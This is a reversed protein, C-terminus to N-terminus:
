QALSLRFSVGFSNNTVPYGTSIYPRNGQRDYYIQVNVKDSLLYDATFKITMTKTGATIQNVGEEIRRIISFNDRLGLDLRLNLDSSMPRKGERTGLILDMKDFRYGLGIVWEQTYNEILQNNTLSLNLMRGKKYEARTSLSNVWM